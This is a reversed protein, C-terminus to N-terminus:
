SCSLAAPPIIETYLTALNSADGTNGVTYSITLIQSNTDSGSTIRTMTYPRNVLTKASTMTLQNGSTTESAYNGAILNLTAIQNNLLGAYSDSFLPKCKNSDVTQSAAQARITELDQQIWYTAQAQREAKVQMLATIALANLTGMLFAFSIMLAALVELM